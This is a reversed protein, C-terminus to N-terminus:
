ILSEYKALGQKQNSNSDPQMSSGTPTSSNMMTGSMTGIARGPPPAIGFNNYASQSAMNRASSANSTKSWDISKNVTSPSSLGNLQPQLPQNFSSTPTLSAFSSMPQDPTVTGSRGSPQLPLRQQQVTSQPAPNSSWSFRPLDPTQQLTSTPNSSRVAPQSTWGSDFLDPTMNSKRGTVLSEFDTEDTVGGDTVVGNTGTYGGYSSSRASQSPASSSNSLERLKRTQNQEIKTSLSKILTMFQQFQELNLLPGLSFSWLCPLVAMALFDHDAVKGVQQFVALAAMMVAPEKTKIARLLPVVKEQVTYKDLMTSSNQKPKSEVGFGDLGDSTSAPEDSGGCLANVAKLGQIKIAMSSTKSFVNSIVPFVDNKITSFDLTPLILPLAKLARDVLSHTPSDLALFYIPLIDEKFEKATCSNTIVSIHDLVVVLGAEKSTDRDHNQGKTITAGLFVGRLAPLGKESFARKGTPLTEIIKFVNQLVLPLLEPDKTEELLAPLIKRDLISKPFQSLIRPLGRMFQAKENPSKAPLSDLFRITSVLVNDFYQAQQFERASYRQAPRRTILKPLLSSKIEKPLDHKALFNNNATPISSPSSFIRKYSSLSFSTDLPSRHPSNYLAIIVLGLSFLDASPTISNDVVFDPSTYDLNLQVSRPLRTDYNLVESLSIPVVSSTTNSSDAPTSFGLSSIKWDSKANIFIAEPTLNAHVLGASEHLFELGKGVQLLGKQIELEDMEVERRRRGGGESDEVVYRSGRGGVGGSKEQSNREELVGALSATVQETAFMLGGNRTEEVPEALELISPHRLRALSSAEKKLRDLVEEQARRLSLAKNSRSSGFGGGPPELAKRDFVFVSVAKGTSKKKAEFIKWPGSLSTPNPAITYNSTINSSFSKLASSFM